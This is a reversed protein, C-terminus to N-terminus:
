SQKSVLVHIVVPVTGSSKSQFGLKLDRLGDGLAIPEKQDCDYTRGEPNDRHVVAMLTGSPCTFNHLTAFDPIRAWTFGNPTADLEATNQVLEQKPAEHAMLQSPSLKLSFWPAKIPSEKPLTAYIGMLLLVVIEAKLVWTSKPVKIIYGLTIFGIFFALGKNEGFWTYVFPTVIWTGLLVLGLLFLFQARNQASESALSFSSWVGGMKTGIGGLGPLSVKAGFKWYLFITLFILFVVIELRM